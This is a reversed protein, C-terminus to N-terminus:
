FPLDLGHSLGKELADFANGLAQAAKDIDNQIETAIQQAQSEIEHSSSNVSQEFDGTFDKYRKLYKDVFDSGTLSTIKRMYDNALANYETDTLNYRQQVQKNYERAGTASSTPQQLFAVARGYEMKLQAWSLGGMAFKSYRDSLEGLSAVAPSFIGSREINQIRRNAQQFVRAIEARLEKSSEAAQIVEQKVRAGLGRTVRASFTFKQAM